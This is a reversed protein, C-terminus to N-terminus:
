NLTKYQFELHQGMLWTAQTLNNSQGNVAAYSTTVKEVKSAVQWIGQDNRRVLYVGMQEAKDRALQLKDRPEINYVVVEGNGVRYDVRYSKNEMKFTSNSGKLVKADATRPGSRLGRLLNDLQQYENAQLERERIFEAYGTLKVQYGSSSPGSDVLSTFKTMLGSNLEVAQKPQTQVAGHKILLETYIDVSTDMIEEKLSNKLDCLSTM